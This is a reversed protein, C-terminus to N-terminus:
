CGFRYNTIANSGNLFEGELGHKVEAGEEGECECKEQETWRAGLARRSARERFVHNGTAAVHARLDDDAALRTVADALAAPDDPAVLLASEGDTLLERAAVTDATIV